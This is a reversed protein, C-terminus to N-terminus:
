KTINRQYKTVNGHCFKCLFILNRDDNTGGLALPIMHHEQLDNISGCFACQKIHTSPVKRRKKMLEIRTKDGCANGHHKELDPFYNYIRALISSASLPKGKGRNSHSVILPDGLSSIDSANLGDIFFYQLIKKDRESTRDHTTFAMTFKVGDAIQQQTLICGKRKRM